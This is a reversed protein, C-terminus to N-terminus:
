KINVFKAEVKSKEVMWDKADIETAKLYVNMIRAILKDKGDHITTYRQLMDLLDRGKYLTLKDLSAAKAKTAVLVITEKEWEPVLAVMRDYKEQNTKNEYGVLAQKKLDERTQIFYNDMACKFLPSITTCTQDGQVENIDFTLTLPIQKFEADPDSNWGKSGMPMISQRVVVLGSELISIEQKM